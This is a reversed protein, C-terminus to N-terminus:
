AALASRVAALNARMWSLYTTGAPLTETVAVAPVHHARADALVQTTEPGSTQANYVLAHVAGSAFLNLTKQLVSASVGTGNEVADSFAAPTKNVLGCAQLLYLPVPETIAVGDGAFKARIAAEIRELGHLRDIFTAANHAFSTAHAHDRRGLVSSLRIALKAITAFDYWV